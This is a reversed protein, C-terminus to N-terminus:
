LASPSLGWVVDIWVSYIMPGVTGDGKFQWGYNKVAVATDIISQLDATIDVIASVPSTAASNTIEGVQVENAPGDDFKLLRIGCGVANPTWVVRFIASTVKATVSTFVAWSSATLATPYAYTTQGAAFQKGDGGRAGFLEIRTPIM